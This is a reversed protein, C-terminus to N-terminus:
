SVNKGNYKTLWRVKVSKRQQEGHGDDEASFLAEM